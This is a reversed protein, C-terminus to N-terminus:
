QILAVSHRNSDAKVIQLAKKALQWTETVQQSDYTTPDPVVLKDPGNTCEAYPDSDTEHESAIVWGGGENGEQNERNSARKVRWCAGCLHAM